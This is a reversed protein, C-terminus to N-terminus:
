NAKRNLSFVSYKVNLENLIAIIIGYENLNLFSTYELKDSKEYRYVKDLVNAVVIREDELKYRDLIKRKLEKTIM